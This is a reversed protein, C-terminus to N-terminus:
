RAIVFTQSVSPTSLVYVGAGAPTFAIANRGARATQQRLIRGRLDRITVVQGAGATFHLHGAVYSPALTTHPATPVLIGTSNSDSVDIERFSLDKWLASENDTRILMTGHGRTVAMNKTLESCGSIDAGPWNTGSDTMAGVLEWKGGGAPAGDTVDSTTDIYTLLRVHSDSDVNYVIFKMGIWRNLPITGTGFLPADAGYGTSYVTSYPHKLEKEWDWKGDDRFRSALGTADCVSGGSSGHALPGTRVQIEMGDYASGGTTLRKYYGTAEVNLFFQTDSVNYPSSLSNVHFRPGEGNILLTGKGDIYLSDDDGSSHNDTWGTPDYSDGDWQVRRAEGNSWHASNWEVSGSKTPYFQTIGFTDLTAQSLGCAMLVVAATINMQKM